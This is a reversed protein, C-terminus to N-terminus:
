EYFGVDLITQYTVYNGPLWTEKLMRNYMNYSNFATIMAFPIVLCLRDISNNLMDARQLMLIVFFPLLIMGIRGDSELGTFYVSFYCLTLVTFKVYIGDKSMKKVPMLIIYMPLLLLGKFLTGLLNASGFRGEGYHEYASFAEFESTVYSFLLPTIVMGLILAMILFIIIVGSQRKYIADVFPILLMSLLITHFFSSVIITGILLPIRKQRFYFFELGIWLLMAGMCTREATIMTYILSGNTMFFLIFLSYYKHPVYKRVMYYLMGALLLSKVLIFQYYKPFAFFFKWFLFEEPHYYVRQLEFLEYYNWYDLGYDYRLGMFLGILLFSFSLIYNKRIDPKFKILNLLCLFATLAYHIWM